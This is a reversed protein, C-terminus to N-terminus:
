MLRRNRVIPAPVKPLVEVEPEPESQGIDAWEWFHALYLLAVVLVALAAWVLGTALWVVLVALALGVVELIDGVSISM